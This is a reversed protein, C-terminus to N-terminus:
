VGFPQKMLKHLASLIRHMTKTTIAVSPREINAISLGM